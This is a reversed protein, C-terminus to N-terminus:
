KQAAAQALLHRLEETLRRQERPRYGAGAASDAAPPGSQYLLHGHDFYSHTTTIVSKAFDFAETDGNARATAATWTIPRNYRYTYERVLAPQGALLYFVTRQQGTEGLYQATIKQPQGHLYRFVAEGGETSEYLAVKQVRSWARRPRADLRAALQRVAVLRADGLTDLPTPAAATAIPPPRNAPRTAAVVPRAATAAPAADPRCSSALGAGGLM